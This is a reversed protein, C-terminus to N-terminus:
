MAKKFAFLFCYGYGLAFLTLVGITVWGMVTSWLAIQQTVTIFVMFGSAIFLAGAIQHQIALDSVYRVFWLLVGFGVLAAGFMRIFAMGAWFSITNADSAVPIPIRPAGYLPLLAPGWFSFILGLVVAVIANITTLKNLTMKIGEKKQFDKFPIAKRVRIKKRELPM